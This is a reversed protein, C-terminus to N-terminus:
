TERPHTSALHLDTLVTLTAVLVDSLVERIATLAYAGDAENLRSSGVLDAALLAALRHANQHVKGAGPRVAPRVNGGEEGV